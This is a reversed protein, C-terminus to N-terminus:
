ASGIQPGLYEKKIGLITKIDQMGPLSSIYQLDDQLNDVDPALPKSSFSVMESYGFANELYLYNKIYKQRLFEVLRDDIWFGKSFREIQLAANSLSGYVVGTDFEVNMRNLLLKAFLLNGGISPNRRLAKDAQVLARSELITFFDSVVDGDVLHQPHYFIARVSSSQSKWKSLFVEYDFNRNVAYDYFGSALNSNQIRQAYSSALYDVADRLYAIIRFKVGAPFLSFFVMPDRLNQLAESSIVLIRATRLENELETRYHALSDSDNQQCSAALAHNAIGNQSRGCKSYVIGSLALQSEYLCLAQQVSSTGTKHRGIHVLVDGYHSNLEYM